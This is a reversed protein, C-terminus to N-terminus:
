VQQTFGQALLVIGTRQKSVQKARVRIDRRMAIVFNQFDSNVRPGIGPRVSGDLMQEIVEVGGFASVRAGVKPEM